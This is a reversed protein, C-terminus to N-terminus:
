EDSVVTEEVYDAKDPEIEIESQVAETMKSLFDRKIASLSDIESGLAENRRDTDDLMCLSQVLDRHIDSVHSLAFGKSNDYPKETTLAILVDRVKKISSVLHERDPYLGHGTM